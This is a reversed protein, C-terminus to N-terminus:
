ACPAAFNPGVNAPVCATDTTLLVMDVAYNPDGSAAPLTIDIVNSGGTLTVVNTSFTSPRWITGGGATVNFTAGEVIIPQPGAISKFTRVMVKFQTPATIAPNINVSISSTGDILTGACNASDYALADNASYQAATTVRLCNEGPQGNLAEAEFVISTYSSNTQSMSSVVCGNANCAKMYVYYTTNPTLGTFPSTGSSAGIATTSFATGGTSDFLAPTTIGPDTTWGKIENPGAVDFNSISWNASLAGSGTGTASSFTVFSPPSGPPSTCASTNFTCNSNCSLTGGTFGGPITTCSQSNLNVGDCQEGAQITGNGCNGGSGGSAGLTVHSQYVGLNNNIIANTSGTSGIIILLVITAILVAGGILLLYELAGQGKKTAANKRWDNKM